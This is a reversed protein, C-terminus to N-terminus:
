PLFHYLLLNLCLLFYNLWTQTQKLRNKIVLFLVVSKIIKITSRLKAARFIEFDYHM